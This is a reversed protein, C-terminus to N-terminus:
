RSNIQINLEGTVGFNLYQIQAVAIIMNQNTVQSVSLGLLICRPDNSVVTTIDERIVDFVQADNPEFVLSPIRTGFNPMYLRDGVATMIENTLDEEILAVDYIGFSGGSNEYNRTSFGNFITM